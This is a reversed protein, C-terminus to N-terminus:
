FRGCINLADKATKHRVNHKKLAEGRECSWISIIKKVFTYLIIPILAMLFLWDFFIRKRGSSKKRGAPSM